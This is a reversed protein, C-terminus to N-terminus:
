IFIYKGELCAEIVISTLDGEPLPGGGSPRIVVAIIGAADADTAPDIPNAGNVLPKPTSVTGDALVTVYELTVGSPVTLDINTLDTPEPFNFMLENVASLNAMVGADFSKMTGSGIVSTVDAPSLGYICDKPSTTTVVSFVILM